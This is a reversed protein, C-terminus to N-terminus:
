AGIDYHITGPFSITEPNGAAIQVRITAPQFAICRRSEVFVGALCALFSHWSDLLGELSVCQHLGM